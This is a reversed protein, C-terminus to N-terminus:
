TELCISSLSFRNSIVMIEVNSIRQLCSINNLFLLNQEKNLISLHVQFYKIGFYIGHVRLIKLYGADLM